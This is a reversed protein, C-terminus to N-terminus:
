DKDEFNSQKSGIQMNDMMKNIQSDETDMIQVRDKNFLANFISNNAPAPTKM